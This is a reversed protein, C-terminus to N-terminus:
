RKKRMEIWDYGAEDEEEASPSLIWTRGTKTDILFTNRTFYDDDPNEKVRYSQEPDVIQWRPSACGCVVLGVGAVIVWGAVKKIGNM